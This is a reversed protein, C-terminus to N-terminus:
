DKKWECFDKIAKKIGSSQYELENKAKFEENFPVREGGRLLFVLEPTLLPRRGLIQYMFLEIHSIIYLLWIPAIWKPAKAGTVGSVLTFFDFWSLFDGGLVYNECCRGKFFAQIHARAVNCANCFELRGPLVVRLDKKQLLQGYNNYDYKGIVICPQLIVVFLGKKAGDFVELEALRKTRIYGSRILWISEIKSIAQYPLTAGTSTFIFKKVKKELSVKILNRTALVNDKLQNPDPWHAVNGAVHFVADVNNPIVNRVSELNYLNVEKCIVKCNKLKALDSSKRHLCIIDWNDKLLEDVLNRGICGTAGTVVALM